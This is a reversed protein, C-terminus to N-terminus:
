NTNKLKKRAEGLQLIIDGALMGEQGWKDAAIDGALGHLFVGMLVTDMADHGQALLGTLMGTLVDGSGATAMGPNGTSNFYVDGSPCSICTHAGKYVIYINFDQSQKRQATLRAFDHEYVGFLRGYEGPHPTLISHPPLKKLLQPQDALINIGDADIVLPPLHEASLLDSLAEATKISTGIGCGIGISQFHDIDGLMETIVDDSDDVTAMAEPISIHLAEVGCAPLHVTLKGAGARLCAKAALIAAGISGRRGCVLRAHGFTGKHDYKLRPRLLSTILERDVFYNDTPAADLGQPHLNIDLIHFEGVFQQNEPMLFALKVAQFTLTHTAKVTPGNSHRDAFLGSPIDISIIKSAAQNVDEVIKGYIGSLPRSLGSGFLADIVIADKEIPPLDALSVVKSKSLYSSKTPLRDWNVTNDQSTHQTAILYVEVRYEHRILMRAVALGDGGNNGPGCFIKIRMDTDPFQNLLWTCVKESAREMLDISPIPENKITFADIEQM